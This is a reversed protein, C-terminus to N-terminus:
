KGCGTGKASKASKVYQEVRAKAAQAFFEKAEDSSEGSQDEMVEILTETLEEQLDANDLDRRLELMPDGLYDFSFYEEALEMAEELTM